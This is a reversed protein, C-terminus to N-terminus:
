PWTHPSMGIIGASQSASTPSDGSTLFELGTQGVHHFETKSGSLCLNCHALIMGNCELRPLFLSAIVGLAFTFAVTNIMGGKDKFMVVGVPALCAGSNVWAQEKPHKGTMHRVFAQEDKLIGEEAGEPLAVWGSKLVTIETSRSASTPLDSSTLLELGAHGVHHFGKEGTIGVNQSALAAPDRSTLLELGAKGVHHFGTNPLSLCSFRKFRPPLPQPSGLDCWQVGAQAVLAFSQLGLVKPPWSLCIVQTLLEFGTQGVHLFGTEVLFAFSLRAHHCTGTIKCLVHLLSMVSILDKSWARHSMGIIGASQSASALQDGSTLLKLGAQGIHHFRMEISGLLCLKCYASVTGNCEVRPLLLSVITKQLAKKGEDLVNKEKQLEKSSYSHSVNYASSLFKLGAQGIHHFEMELLFVFILRAHQCIGTAGAVQSASAPSDSSGLLCLNCHASITSSCELRPLLTLNWKFGPPLPQLSSLDHWQVGAQTVSHSEIRAQTVSHSREPRTHQSVDTIGASQSASAPLDGSTLLELGAQGIHLFGTEVLFVFILQAHHGVGTIGAVQSASVPFDSSGPLCLNCHVSITGNCELGPPLPQLSGLDFWQVGAQAFPHSEIQLGLVKPPRPLHIEQLGLMKPPRPLHIVFNSTRAAQGVHHFGTEILIYFNAPRTTIHRYDWSSPLSLCSFLKFGPPLPQLSSLNHWHVGALARDQHTGITVAVRSASAPSDSSGLLCLNCHASITGSCELRTVSCSETIRANEFALAPLDGSTLLELGTEVVHHFGMEVLFVFILQAHHHM